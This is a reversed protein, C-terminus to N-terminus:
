RRTGRMATVTRFNLAFVMAFGAILAVTIGAMAAVAVEDPGRLPHAVMPGVSIGLGSTPVLSLLLILFAPILAGIVFPLSASAGRRRWEGVAGGIVGRFEAALFRGYGRGRHDRRASEFVDLMESAFFERHGRPYLLLLVSYCRRM